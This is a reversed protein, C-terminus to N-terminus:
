RALVSENDGKIRIAENDSGFWSCVFDLFRFVLPLCFCHGILFLPWDFPLFRITPGFFLWGPRQWCRVIPRRAPNGLVEVWNLLAIVLRKKM